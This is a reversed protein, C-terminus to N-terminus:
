AILQAQIKQQIKELSEQPPNVVVAQISGGGDGVFRPLIHLHLHPVAQGAIEGQNIGLTLGQAGVAWIAAEALKQVARFFLGVESESLEALTKVHRRPVVLLHGPAHPQIDLFAVATEDTFVIKAPARAAAIRCFLCETM